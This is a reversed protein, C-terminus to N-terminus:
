VNQEVNTAVIWVIPQKLSVGLEDVLPSYNNEKLSRPKLRKKYIQHITLILRSPPM